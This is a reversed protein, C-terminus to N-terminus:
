GSQIPKCSRGDKLRRELSALAEGLSRPTIDEFVLGGQDLARVVFGVGQQDGIEIWGSGRVFRTVAPYRREVAPPKPKSVPKAASDSRLVTRSFEKFARDWKLLRGAFIVHIGIQELHPLLEQWERRKRIRLTRPRRPNEDGPHLMAGSFLDAMDNVDPQHAVMRERLLRCGEETVVLGQWVTRGGWITPLFDAEWFDDGQPLRRLESKVLQVGEGLYLKHPDNPVPQFESFAKHSQAM